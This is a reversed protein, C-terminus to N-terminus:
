QNLDQIWKLEQSIKDTYHKLFMIKFKKNEKNGSQEEELTKLLERNNFLHIEYYRKISDLTTKRSNEDLLDMLMLKINIIQSSYSSLEPIEATMLETFYKKGENTILYKSSKQGGSSMKRKASIFGNKELKKLAPYISGFSATSFVSFENKIKQKIKYITYEKYLLAALILLETM